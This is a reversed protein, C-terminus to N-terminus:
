EALAKAAQAPGDASSMKTELARIYRIQQGRARLAEEFRATEETSERAAEFASERFEAARESEGRREAIDVLELLIEWRRIPADAVLLLAQFARQARDIDDADLAERGLALLIGPHAPDIRTARDLEELARPADGAAKCARSLALHVQARGKPKRS